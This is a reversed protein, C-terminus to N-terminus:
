WQSYDIFERIKEIKIKKKPKQGALAGALSLIRSKLPKILVQGKRVVAKAKGPQKIRLQRRIEEPLYIQWQRTITLLQEM